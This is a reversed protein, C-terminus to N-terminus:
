PASTLHGPLIGGIYLWAAIAALTVFIPFWVTLAWVSM